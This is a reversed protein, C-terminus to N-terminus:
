DPSSRTSTSQIESLLSDLENKFYAIEANKKSILTSRLAKEAELEQGLRAIERKYPDADGQVM